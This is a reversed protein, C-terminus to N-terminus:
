YDQQFMSELELHEQSEQYSESTFEGWGLDVLLDISVNPSVSGCCIPDIPDAVSLVKSPIIYVSPFLKM